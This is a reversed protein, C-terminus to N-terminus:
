NKVYPCLERQKRVEVLHVTSMLSVRSVSATKREVGENTKLTPLKWLPVIAVEPLLECAYKRRENMLRGLKRKLLWLQNTTEGEDTRVTQNPQITIVQRQFRTTQLQYDPSAKRKVNKPENREVKFLHKISESHYKWELLMFAVLILCAFITRDIKFM